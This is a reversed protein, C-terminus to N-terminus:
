GLISLEDILTPQYSKEKSYRITFRNWKFENKDRDILEKVRELLDDILTFTEHQDDFYLHWM